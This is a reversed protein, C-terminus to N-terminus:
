FGYVGSLRVGDETAVYRHAGPRGRKAGWEESARIHIEVLGAKELRNIGNYRDGGKTANLERRTAGRALVIDSLLEYDASYVRFM